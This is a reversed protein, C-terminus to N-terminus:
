FGWKASIYNEVYQRDTTTMNGQYVLLEALTWDAIYNSDGNASGIYLQSAGGPNTAERPGDRLVKNVYLTEGASQTHLFELMYPTNQAIIAGTSFNGAQGFLTTPYVTPTPNNFVMQRQGDFNNIMLFSYGSVSQLKIVFFYNDTNLPSVALNNTTRM